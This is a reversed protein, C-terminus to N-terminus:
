GRSGDINALNIEFFRLEVKVLRQLVLCPRHEVLVDFPSPGRVVHVDQHQQQFQSLRAIVRQQQLFGPLALRVAVAHARERAIFEEARQAGVPDARKFLGDLLFLVARDAHVGDLVVRARSSRAAVARKAALAEDDRKVRVDDAVAVFARAGDAPVFHVWGVAHQAQLRQDVAQVRQVDVHLSVSAHVLRPLLNLASNVVERREAAHSPFPSHVREGRHVGVAADPRAGVRRPFARVAYTELDNLNGLFHFRNRLLVDRIAGLNARNQLRERLNAVVWVSRRPGM